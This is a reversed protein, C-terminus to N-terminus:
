IICYNRPILLLNTGPDGEPVVIRLHELGKYLIAYFLERWTCIPIQTHFALMTEVPSYGSQVATPYLRAVSVEISLNNAEPGVNKMSKMPSFNFSM